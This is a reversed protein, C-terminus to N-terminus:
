ENSATVQTAELAQKYKSVGNSVLSRFIDPPLVQFALATVAQREKKTLRRHPDAVTAAANLQDWTSEPGYRPFTRLQEWRALAIQLARLHVKELEHVNKFTESLAYEIPRLIRTLRLTAEQKTIGEAPFGLERLFREQRDIALEQTGTIEVSFGGL